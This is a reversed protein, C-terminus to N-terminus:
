GSTQLLLIYFHQCSANFQIHIASGNALQGGRQNRSSRLMHIMQKFFTRLNAFGARLFTFFMGFMTHFMATM